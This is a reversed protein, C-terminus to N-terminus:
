SANGASIERGPIDRTKGPVNRFQVPGLDKFTGPCVLVFLDQSKFTWFDRVNKLLDLSKRTGKEIVNM